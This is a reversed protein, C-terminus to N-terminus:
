VYFVLIYSFRIIETFVFHYKCVWVDNSYFQKMYKSMGVGLVPSYELGKLVKPIDNEIRDAFTGQKLNGSSAMEGLEFYRKNINDVFEQEIFGSSFLAIVLLTGITGVQVAFKLGKSSLVIYGLIAFVGIMMWSRTASM